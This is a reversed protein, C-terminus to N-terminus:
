DKDQDDFLVDFDIAEPVRRAIFIGTVRADPFRRKLTNSMARFHCGTTLVDDVIGIWTPSPDILAEDVQYASELTQPSREGGDHMAMMGRTQRVLERVDVKGNAPAAIMALMDLIRSDYEPDTTLKSTPVPVLTLRDLANALNKSLADAVLKIAELKYRWEVKGRRSVPKKFNLVLKNTASHSWDRRATYEGYFVCEDAAELFSHDGRTLEDIKTLRTPFSTGASTMTIPSV